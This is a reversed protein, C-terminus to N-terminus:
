AHALPRASLTGSRAARSGEAEGRRRRSGRRGDLMAAHRLAMAMGLMWTLRPAIRGAARHAAAAPAATSSSRSPAAERPAAGTLGSEM